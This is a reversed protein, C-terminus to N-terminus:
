RSLTTTVASGMSAQPRSGGTQLALRPRQSPPGCGLQGVRAEWSEVQRVAAGIRGQEVLIEVLRVVIPEEYPVALLAQQCALRAEDVAGRRLCLDVIRSVGDVVLAEISCRAPHQDVWGWYRRNPASLPVGRILRISDMLFATSRRGIDPGVANSFQEVDSAVGCLRYQGSRARPLHREGVCARLEAILNSFRGPSIPRGSWIAEIVAPAAVPGAVTLYALL